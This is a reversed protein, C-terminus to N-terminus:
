LFGTFAGFVEVSDEYYKNLIISRILSICANKLKVVAHVYHERRANKASYKKLSMYTYYLRVMFIFFGAM